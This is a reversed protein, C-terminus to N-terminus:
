AAALADHLLILAQTRSHVGLRRYVGSLYTRVTNETVGMEYAIQKNRLGQHLGKLIRIQSPSLSALIHNPDSLPAASISSLFQLSEMIDKISDSRHFHAKAGMAEAVGADLGDEEGSVLVYAPRPFAKQLDFFAPNGQEDLVSFDLVVADLEPNQRMIQRADAFRDAESITVRARLDKLIAKLGLRQLEHSEVVLIHRMAGGPIRWGRM